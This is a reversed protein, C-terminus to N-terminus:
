IKVVIKSSIDARANDQAIRFAEPGKGRASGFGVLYRSDPYKRSKGYNKVWDPASKAQVATITLFLSIILLFSLWTKEKM